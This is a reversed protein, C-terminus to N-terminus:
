ARAWGSGWARWTRHTHPPLKAIRSRTLPLLPQLPYEVMVGAGLWLGVSEVDQPHHTTTRQPMLPPPRPPKPRLSPPARARAWTWAWASARWLQHMLACRREAKWDGSQKAPRAEGRGPAGGGLAGVQLHAKAFIGDTLEFDAALAESSGRKAILAGVAELSKKLEPLKELLRKRNQLVQPPPTQHSAPPKIPRPFASPDVHPPHTPASLPLRPRAGRERRGKAAPSRTSVRPQAPCRKCYM